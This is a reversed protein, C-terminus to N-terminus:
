YNCNAWEELTMEGSLIKLLDESSVWMKEVHTCVDSFLKPSKAKEIKMDAQDFMYGEDSGVIELVEWSEEEYDGSWETREKLTIYEKDANDFCVWSNSAVLEKIKELTNM